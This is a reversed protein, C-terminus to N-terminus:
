PVYRKFSDDWKIEIDEFDVEWKLTPIALRLQTLANCFYQLAEETMEDSSDPLTTAGELVVQDEEGALFDGDADTYFTYSEGNWGEGTQQYAEIKEEVSFQKLNASVIGKEAATLPHDRTANYYISLSM